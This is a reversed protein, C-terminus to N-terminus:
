DSMTLIHRYRQTHQEVKEDTYAKQSDDEAVLRDVIENEVVVFLKDNFEEQRDMFAVVNANFEEQRQIFAVVNANFEEQRQIASALMQNIGEQNRNFGEQNKNFGEQNKNFIEQKRNVERQEEQFTELRQIAEGQSQLMRVVLDIKESDTM